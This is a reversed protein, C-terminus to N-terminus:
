RANEGPDPTKARNYQRGGAAGFFYDDARRGTQEALGRLAILIVLGSQIAAPFPAVFRNRAGIRCRLVAFSIKIFHCRAPMKATASPRSTAPWANAWREPPPERPPDAPRPADPEALRPADLGALRPVDRGAERFLDLEDL